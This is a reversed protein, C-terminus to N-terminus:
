STPAKVLGTGVATSEFGPSLAKRDTNAVVSSRLLDPPISGLESLIKEGWLAAVGAVHPVAMSTGSKATLGGGLAASVIDVGPASLDVAINSTDAVRLGEESQGLSGISLIGQSDAPLGATIVHEPDKNRRSNNGSGALMLPKSQLSNELYASLSDFALTAERYDKLARSFAVESVLDEEVRLRTTYGTFDITLSMSIIHAGNAAAWRIAEITDITNGWGEDNIVKAILAKEIGPAVGIPVDDHPRGFLTGACHTGHGSQDEPSDETFNRSEHEVHSLSPHTMDVGADLVAVRVGQGTYPSEDTGVAARGWAQTSTSLSAMESSSVLSPDVHRVAIEPTVAQVTPDRRIEAAEGADLHEEEFTLEQKKAPSGLVKPGKTTYTSPYQKEELRLVLYRRKSM